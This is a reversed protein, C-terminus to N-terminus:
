ALSEDDVQRVPQRREGGVRWAPQMVVDLALECTRDLLYPPALAHRADAEHPTAEAPERRCHVGRKMRLTDLPEDHERQRELRLWREGRGHGLMERTDVAVHRGPPDTGPEVLTDGVAAAYGIKKGGLEGLGLECVRGVAGLRLGQHEREFLPEVAVHRECPPQKAVDHAVGIAAALERRAPEADAPPGNRERLDATGHEVNAGLV